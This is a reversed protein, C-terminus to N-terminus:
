NASAQDMKRALTMGIVPVLTENVRVSITVNLTNKNKLRAIMAGNLNKRNIGVIVKNGSVNGSIIDLGKGEAGDLFKGKYTNGAREISASMLQKFIGVHCAGDLVLGTSRGDNSIGKLDCTFKTGKYKGAVIEGPGEWVGATRNFFARDNAKALGPAALAVSLALAAFAPSLRRTSM